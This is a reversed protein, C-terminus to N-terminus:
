SRGASSTRTTPRAPWRFFVQLARYRNSATAPKFRGLLDAVFAGVHERHVHAPALPMGKEALFAGFQSLGETYTEITKPSKNEARMTRRFSDVLVHFPLASAATLADAPSSSPM